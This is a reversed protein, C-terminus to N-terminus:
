TMGPTQGSRHPMSTFLVSWRWIRLKRCHLQRGHNQSAILDLCERNRYILIQNLPGAPDLKGRRSVHGAWGFHNRLAVIDLDLVSHQLKLGKITRNTNKMYDELDLGAPSRSGLLKRLRQTQM